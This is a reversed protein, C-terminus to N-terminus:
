SCFDVLIVETAGEVGHDKDASSISGPKVFRHKALYEGIAKQLIFNGKDHIIRVMRVNGRCCEKLFAEVSADAM